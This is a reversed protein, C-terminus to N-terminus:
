AVVNARIREIQTVFYYVEKVEMMENFPLNIIEPKREEFAIFRKNLEEIEKRVQNDKSDGDFSYMLNTIEPLRNTLSTVKKMLNRKLLAEVEEPMEIQKPRMIISSSLYLKEIYNGMVLYAYLQKQQNESLDIASNTLAEKIMNQLEQESIKDNEFREYIIEIVEKNLGSNSSLEMLAAYNKYAENTVATNKKAYMLDTLYVGINAAIKRKGNYTQANLPYNVLEPYYEIDALELSSEIEPVSKLKITQQTFINNEQANIELETDFISLQWPVIFLIIGFVSIAILQKMIKM